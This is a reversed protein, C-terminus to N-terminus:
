YKPMIDPANPLESPITPNTAQKYVCDVQVEIQRIFMFQLNFYTLIGISWFPFVIAIQRIATQSVLTERCLRPGISPGKPVWRGM